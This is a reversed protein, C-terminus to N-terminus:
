RQQTSLSGDQGDSTTLQRSINSQVFQKLGDYGQTFLYELYWSWPKSHQFVGVSVCGTVDFFHLTRDDFCDRKIESIHSVCM